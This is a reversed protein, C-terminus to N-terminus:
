KSSTQTVHHHMVTFLLVALNIPLSVSLCIVGRSSCFVAGLSNIISWSFTSSSACSLQIEPPARPATPTSLAESSILVKFMEGFMKRIDTFSGKKSGWTLGCVVTLGMATDLCSVCWAAAPSPSPVVNIVAKGMAPKQPGSLQKPEAKVPRNPHFQAQGEASFGLPQTPRSSHGKKGGERNLGRTLLERCSDMFMAKQISHSIDPAPEARAAEWTFIFVAWLEQVSSRQVNSWLKVVVELWEKSYPTALM